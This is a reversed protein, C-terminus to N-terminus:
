QYQKFFIVVNQQSPYLFFTAPAIIFTPPSGAPRRSSIFGRYLGVLTGVFASGLKGSTENADVDRMLM